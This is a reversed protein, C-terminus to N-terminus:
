LNKNRRFLFGNTCRERRYGHRLGVFHEDLRCGAGLNRRNVAVIVRLLGFQRGQFLNTRRALSIVQVTRLGDTKTSIM